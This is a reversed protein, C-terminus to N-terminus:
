KNIKEVVLVFAVRSDARARKRGGEKGRHSGVGGEGRGGSFPLGNTLHILVLSSNEVEIMFFITSRSSVGCCISCFM